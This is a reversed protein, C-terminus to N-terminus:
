SRDEHHAVAMVSFVDEMCERAADKPDEGADVFGSPLIWKGLGPSNARRVLLIEGDKEIWVGVAVKPDPFHVHGCHPCVPRLRGAAM